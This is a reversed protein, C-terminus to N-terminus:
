PKVCARDVKNRITESEFKSCVLPRSILQVGPDGLTHCCQVGRATSGPVGNSGDGKGGVWTDAPGTWSAQQPEEKQFARTSTFHCWIAM